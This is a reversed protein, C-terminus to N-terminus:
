RIELLDDLDKDAAHDDCIPLPGALGSYDNQWWWDAGKGCDGLACVYRSMAARGRGALGVAVPRARHAVPLRAADLDAGVAACVAGVVV